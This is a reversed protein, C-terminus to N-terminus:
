TGAGVLGGLFRAGVDLDQPALGHSGRVWDITVAAGARRLM